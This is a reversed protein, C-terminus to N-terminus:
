RQYALTIVHRGPGVPVGLFTADAKVVTTPRGDVSAEWGPFWTEAVVVLAPQAADIVLHWQGPAGRTAEVAPGGPRPALRDYVVTFAAVRGPDLRGESVLNGPGRKADTVFLAPEEGPACAHCALEFAYTRGASDPVPEFTFEALDLHDRGSSRARTVVRGVTVGDAAVERLTLETPGASANLWVSVGRLGGQPSRFVAGLGNRVSRAHFGTYVRAWQHLTCAAALDGGLLRDPVRPSGAECPDDTATLSGAGLTAAVVSAGPGANVVAIGKQALSVALETALFDDGPALQVVRDYARAMPLARENKQVEANRLVAGFQDRREFREPVLYATAALGLANDRYGTPGFLGEGTLKFLERGALPHPWGVSLRQGRALLEEVPRP